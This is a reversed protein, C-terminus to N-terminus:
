GVHRLWVLLAPLPFGFRTVSDPLPADIRAIQESTM